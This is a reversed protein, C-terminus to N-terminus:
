LVNLHQVSTQTPNSIIKWHQYISPAKNDTGDTVHVKLTCVVVLSCDATDGPGKVWMTRYAHSHINTTLPHIIHPSPDM